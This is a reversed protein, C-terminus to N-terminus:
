DAVREVKCSYCGAGANHLHLYAIKPNAFLREIHAKMERGAVVVGDIMTSGKDYARVSMTRSAVVEPIEGPALQAENAKERVFIPGSARYPSDVDHHVFPLLIVTEGIEADELGIRCPFGPKADVIMRRMAKQALEEDSLSFLPQIEKLPLGVIQFNMKM